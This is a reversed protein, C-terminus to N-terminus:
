ERRVTVRQQQVDGGLACQAVANFREERRGYNFLYSKCCVPPIKFTYNVEGPPFYLDAGRRPNIMYTNVASVYISNSLLTYSRRIESQASKLVTTYLKFMPPTPPVTALSDARIDAPIRRDRTRAGGGAGQCSPPSSLRLDCQQPSAEAPRYWTIVLSHNYRINQDSNHEGHNLHRILDIKVELM